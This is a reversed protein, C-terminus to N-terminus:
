SYRLIIYKLNLVVLLLYGFIMNPKKVRHHHSYIM